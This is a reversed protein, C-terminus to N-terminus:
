WNAFSQFTILDTYTGSPINEDVKAKLVMKGRGNLVPAPSDVGCTGTSSELSCFLDLFSTSLGGVGNVASPSYRATARLYGAEPDQSVNVVKLGYGASAIDLDLDASPILSSGSSLGANADKVKVSIGSVVNTSIDLYIFSDSDAVSGIVLYPFRVSYPPDTEASDSTGVDLDMSITPLSTTVSAEPSLGSETFNGSFVKIRIKYTKGPLLGLINAKSWDRPGDAVQWQTLTRYDSIDHTAATEPMHTDGDLYYVTAWNDDTILVTYRTDSPNNMPDIEFRARDYCGTEGCIQVMGEGSPLGSCSSTGDTTTEFCRVRPVHAMFTYGHGIGFGFNPSTLKQYDLPAGVNGLIMYNTASSEKGATSLKPDKLRYHSSTLDAAYISFPNLFLTFWVFAFLSFIFGCFRIRHM